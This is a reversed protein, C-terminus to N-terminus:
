QPKLPFLLRLQRDYMRTQIRSGLKISLNRIGGTSLDNFKVFTAQLIWFKFAQGDKDIFPPSISNEVVMRWGSDGFELNYGGKQWIVSIPYQDALDNGLIFPSSMGKGVYADVNIKVPGDMTHFYLDVEVYGSISANRTVQVLNIRQGQRVKPPKQIELLLKFSIL